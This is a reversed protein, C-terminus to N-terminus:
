SCARKNTSTNEFSGFYKVNPLPKYLFERIICDLYDISWKINHYNDFIRFDKENETDSCELWKM